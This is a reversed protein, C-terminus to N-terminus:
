FRGTLSVTAGNPAPALGLGVDELIPRGVAREYDHLRSETDPESQAAVVGWVTLGAGLVIREAEEDPAPGTWFAQNLTCDTVGSLGTALLDLSQEDHRLQVRWQRLRQRRRMHRLPHPLFLRQM